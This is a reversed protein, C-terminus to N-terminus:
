FSIEFHCFYFQTRNLKIMLLHLSHLKIASSSWFLVLSKIELPTTRYSYATSNHHHMIHSFTHVKYLARHQCIVNSWTLMFLLRKYLSWTNVLIIWFFYRFYNWLIQAVEPYLTAKISSQAKPGALCIFIYQFGLIYLSSPKSLPWEGKFIISCARLTKPIFTALPFVSCCSLAVTQM